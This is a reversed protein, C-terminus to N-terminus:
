REFDCCRELLVRSSRTQYGCPLGCGRVREPKLWGFWLKWADLLVGVEVSCSRDELYGEDLGIEAMSRFFQKGAAGGMHGKNGGRGGAGQVRRETTLPLLFAFLSCCRGLRKSVLPLVGILASLSRECWSSCSLSNPIYTCWSVGRM